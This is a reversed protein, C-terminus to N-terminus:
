KSIHYYLGQTMHYAEGLAESYTPHAFITRSLESLPINLRIATAGHHIIETAERGIVHMGYIKNGEPDSIIKVLGEPDSSAVAKGIASYPFKVKKYDRGSNKVEEESLGTSAIQPETFICNPVGSYDVDEKEGLINNIAVIAEHYAVHALQYSGILDGAAYIGPWKTEMNSNVEVGEEEKVFPLGTFVPKRGAAVLLHTANVKKEKGRQEFSIEIKEKQEVKEVRAKTILDIGKKRLFVRARQALEKDVGPLIQEMMEIVTVKSGLNNYISAMELGIVGGGIVVLDEPIEKLDLIKKSDLFDVSDIGPIPPVFPESGTALLLNNCKIKEGNELTIEKPDETSTVEGKQPYFDIKNNEILHKIGKTLDMVVQNKKEVLQGLDFEKEEVQLGYDKAKELSSKIGSGEVMTKTPICGWNLCTGGIKEKEVLAVRAGKQAAHIAGMYGAPGSGLIIVDYPQM